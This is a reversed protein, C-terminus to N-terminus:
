RTSESPSSQRSDRVRPVNVVGYCVRIHIMDFSQVQIYELLLPIILKM